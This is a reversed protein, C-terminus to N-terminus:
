SPYGRRGQNGQFSKNNGQNGHPRNGGGQQQEKPKVALSWYETGNKAEKEWASLWFEYVVGDIEITLNGNRDPHNDQQKRDNIFLAGCNVRQQQQSM